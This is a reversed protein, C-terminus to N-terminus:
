HVYNPDGEWIREVFSKVGKKDIKKSVKKCSKYLISTSLFILIIMLVMGIAIFLEIITYGKNNKM